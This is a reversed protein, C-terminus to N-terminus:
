WECHTENQDLKWDSGSIYHSYYQALIKAFWNGEIGNLYTYQQFRRKM